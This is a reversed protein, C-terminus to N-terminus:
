VSNTPEILIRFNNAKIHIIQVREIVCLWVAQDGRCDSMNFLLDHVNGRAVCPDYVDIRTGSVWQGPSTCVFRGPPLPTGSWRESFLPHLGDTSGSVALTCSCAAM